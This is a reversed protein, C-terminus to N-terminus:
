ECVTSNVWPLFIGEIFVALVPGQSISSLSASLQLVVGLKEVVFVLAVCLAGFLVVVVQMVVHVHHESLPKSTMPRWFDEVVVAAMSNLGTSLSSPVPM